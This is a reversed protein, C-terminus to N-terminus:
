RRNEEHESRGHGHEHEHGHAHHMFLHMLPCALLLLYPLVGLVHASHESILFFAMVALAGAIVLTVPSLRGHSSERTDM